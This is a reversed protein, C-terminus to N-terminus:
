HGPNPATLHRRITAIDSTTVGISLLYPGVGGYCHDLYDLTNQMTEPYSEMWRPRPIPHGQTLAQEELWESYMPELHSASVAYDEIITPRPVGVLSLLLAVILGTRDKGAHCHVLVGGKNMASAIAQIISSIRSKCNDLIYCYEELMSGASTLAESAEPDNPALIPLNIYTASPALPGPSAFPHPNTHWEHESPARLDIITCIGYALLATQGDPTLNHLNDTRILTQWRTQGGNPTPYGGIDRANLCGDWNLTRSPQLPKDPQQSM